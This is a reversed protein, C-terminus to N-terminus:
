RSFHIVVKQHPYAESASAPINVALKGNTVEAGEVSAIQGPNWVALEYRMGGAGAFELIESDSSASWSDSIMRLGLSSSGLPPLSNAYSIGFDNKLRIRLSSKGKPVAVQTIVHQDVDSKSIQFPVRKGNFEASIIKAHLGLAPSFELSTAGASQIQLTIEDITKRYDFDLTTDSAHLNHIAFSTWDAPVHPSLIVKHQAADTQLGFLGRLLPSIVM